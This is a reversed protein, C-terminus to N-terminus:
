KFKLTIGGDVVLTAGTIYSAEDSALFSAANAIDWPQGMRGMPCQQDRARWTAEIDGDAYADALSPTSAVMPTKILGPLIANVRVQHEAFDFATVKTLQNIAAKSASYSAYPVGTHSISVISSINVVSGGGQEVMVPIVYKMTLFCSKLNVRITRDWSEESQTTVSGLEAIGVNNNLIDVRQFDKICKAVIARVDEASSADASFHEARGGEDRILRVTELAAEGDLDVCLVKAGERAFVIATAKGNGIGPGSSGAGVVIAIKGLLRGTM